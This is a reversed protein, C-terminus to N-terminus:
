TLAWTISGGVPGKLAITQVRELPPDAGFATAGRTLVALGLACLVAGMNRYSCFRLMM